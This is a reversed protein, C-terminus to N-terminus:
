GGAARDPQSRGYQHRAAVRAPRIRAESPCSAGLKQRLGQRYKGKRIANAVLWPACVALMMTYLLDLLYPMDARSEKGLWVRSGRMFNPPLNVAVATPALMLRSRHRRGQAHLLTQIRVAAVPALIM